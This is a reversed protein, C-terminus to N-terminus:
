VLISGTACRYINHERLQFRIYRDILRNHQGGKPRILDIKFGDITHTGLSPKHLISLVSIENLDKRIRKESM